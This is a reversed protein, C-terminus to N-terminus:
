KKEIVNQPHSPHEVRIIRLVRERPYVSVVQRENADNYFVFANSNQNLIFDSSIITDCTGKITTVEWMHFEQSTGEIEKINFKDQYSKKCASLLLLSFLVLVLKRM